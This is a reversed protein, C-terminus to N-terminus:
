GFKNSFLTGPTGATGPTVGTSVFCRPVAHQTLNQRQLNQKLMFLLDRSESFGRVSFSVWSKITLKKVM